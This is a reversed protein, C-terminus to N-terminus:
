QSGLDLQGAMISWDTEPYIQIHWGVLVRPSPLYFPQTFPVDKIKKDGPLCHMITSLGTADVGRLAM